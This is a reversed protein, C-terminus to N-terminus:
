SGIGGCGSLIDWGHCPIVEWAKQNANNLVAHRVEMEMELKDAPLDEKVEVTVNFYIPGPFRPYQPWIVLNTVNIAYNTWAESACKAYQWGRIVIGYPGDKYQNWFQPLGLDKWLNQTGWAQRKLRELHEEEEAMADDDMSFHLQHRDALQSRVLCPLLILAILMRLRPLPRLAASVAEVPGFPM